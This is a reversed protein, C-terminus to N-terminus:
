LLPLQLFGLPWQSAFRRLCDDDTCLRNGAGRDALRDSASKPRFAASVLGALGLAVWPFREFLGQGYPYFPRPEVLLLQAKWGLQPFNFGFNASLQIYPTAHPGYIALYIALYPAVVVFTGAIIWGASGWPSPSRLIRFLLFGGLIASIIADAPRCLPILGLLAGLVLCQARDLRTEDYARCVRGFALWILASSLATTWPVIWAAFLTPGLLTTALFLLIARSADLGFRAAVERFGLYAACYCLLNVFLAAYFFPLWLLAWGIALPYLLPYWHSTPELAGNAFARASAAYKLQDFSNEWSIHPKVGALYDQDFLLATVLFAAAAALVDSQAALVRFAQRGITRAEFAMFLRSEVSAQM